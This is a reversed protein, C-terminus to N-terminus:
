IESKESKWFKTKKISPFRYGLFGVKALVTRLAGHTPYITSRARAASQRMFSGPSSFGGGGSVAAKSPM